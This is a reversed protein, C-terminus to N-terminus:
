LTDWVNWSRLDRIEIFYISHTWALSFSCLCYSSLGLQSKLGLTGLNSNSTRQKGHSACLGCYSSSSVRATCSTICSKTSTISRLFSHTTLLAHESFKSISDLRFYSSCWCLRLFTPKKAQLSSPGLITTVVCRRTSYSSFLSCLLQWSLGVLAHWSPLMQLEWNTISHM